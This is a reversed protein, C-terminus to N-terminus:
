REPDSRRKDRLKEAREADVQRFAAKIVEDSIGFDKLTDIMLTSGPKSRRFASIAIEMDREAKGREEGIAIGRERGREEGIAIGSAKGREELKQFVEQYDIWPLTELINTTMNLGVELRSKTITNEAITRITDQMQLGIHHPVRGADVSDKLEKLLEAAAETFREAKPNTLPEFTRLYFQGIPFLNRDAIEKASLEALRVTPINLVKEDGDFYKIRWTLKEPTKEASKLFIVCPQPIDIVLESDTATMSHRLAGGLAYKFVRVAMGGTDDAEV